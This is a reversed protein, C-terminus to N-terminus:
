SFFLKKTQKGSFKVKLKNKKELKYTLIISLVPEYDKKESTQKQSGVTSIIFIFRKLLLARNAM